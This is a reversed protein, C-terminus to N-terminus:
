FNFVCFCDDLVVHLENKHYHDDPFVRWRTAAHPINYFKEKNEVKMVVLANECEIILGFDAVGAYLIKGKWPQFDYKIVDSFPGIDLNKQTFNVYELGSEVARYIKNKYGWSMLGNNANFIYEESFLGYFDCFDPSYKRGFGAILSQKKNSSSYISSYSWNSFLSHCESIQFIDKEKEKFNRKNINTISEKLDYEFLGEEGGSLAIRGNAKIKLSFLPADWLKSDSQMTLGNETVSLKFLGEDVISYFTNNYFDIDVHLENLPNTFKNILYSSLRGEEIITSSNEGLVNKLKPWDLVFIENTNTWLYLLNGVVFSDWYDGQIKILKPDLHM